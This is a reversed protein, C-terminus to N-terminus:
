SLRKDLEKRLELHFDDHSDQWIGKAKRLQALKNQHSFSSLFYDIAERILSSQKKGTRNSTAKLQKVEYDTLYIQTRIM